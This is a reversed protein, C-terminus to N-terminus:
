PEARNAVFRLRRPDDGAGCGPMLLGHGAEFLGVTLPDEADRQSGGGSGSPAATHRAAAATALARFRRPIIPNEV